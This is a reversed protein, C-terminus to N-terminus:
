GKELRGSLFDGSKWDIAVVIDEGLLGADLPQNGLTARHTQRLSNCDLGIVDGSFPRAVLCLRESQDFCFDGIFQRGLQGAEQVQRSAIINLTTADLKVIHDYDSAWWEDATSRFCFKPNGGRAALSLKRVKKGTGPDYLIPSSDRQVSVILLGSPVEQVGVIGQYLKDYDADTYWDFAQMSVEGDLNVLFLRALAVYARPLHQWVAKDGTLTTELRAGDSGALHLSISSIPRQPESHNHASIDLRDGDWHHVVSFWDGKGAKLTLYNSESLKIIRPSADGIRYVWLGGKHVWGYSCIAQTGMSDLIV